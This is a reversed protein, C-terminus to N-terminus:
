HRGRLKRVVRGVVQEAPLYGFHRSDFSDAHNDGIVLLRGTMVIHDAVAARMDAPVTEGAVAVVRKVIHGSPVPSRPSVMPERAVVIQGRVIRDIGGRRVLVTDGARLTPEMSDGSVGALLLMRRAALAATVVAVAIIAPVWVAIL